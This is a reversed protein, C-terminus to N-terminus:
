SSGSGSDSTTILIGPPLGAHIHLSRDAFALSLYMNDTNVYNILMGFICSKYRLKETTKKSLNFCTYLLHTNLTLTIEKNQIQSKMKHYEEERTSSFIKISGKIGLKICFITSMTKVYNLWVRKIVHFMVQWLM